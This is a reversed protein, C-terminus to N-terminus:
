QAFKNAEIKKVLAKEAPALDSTDVAPKGTNDTKVPVYDYEPPLSLPAQTVVLFENPAKKSLGLKEKTMGCSSLIVIAFLAFLVKKM